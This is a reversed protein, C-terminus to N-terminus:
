RMGTFNSGGSAHSRTDDLPGDQVSKLIQAVVLDVSPMELKGLRNYLDNFVTEYKAKCAPRKVKLAPTMLGNEATWAESELIVAKPIEFGRLEAAKGLKKFEALVLKIAEANTAVTEM